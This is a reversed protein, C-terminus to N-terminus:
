CAASGGLIEDLSQGEAALKATSTQNPSYRRHISSLRTSAALKFVSLGCYSLYDASILEIKLINAITKMSNGDSPM